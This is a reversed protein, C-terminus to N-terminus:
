AGSRNNSAKNRQYAEVTGECPDDTSYAEDLICAVATTDRAAALERVMIAALRQEINPSIGLTAMSKDHAMEWDFKELAALSETMLKDAETMNVADQLIRNIVTNNM